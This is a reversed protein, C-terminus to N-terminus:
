RLRDIWYDPQRRQHAVATIIISEHEIAYLISYPFKNLICKRIDDRVRPWSEPHQTIRAVGKNFEEIFRKGLNPTQVEYFEFADNLELEAPEIIRIRM